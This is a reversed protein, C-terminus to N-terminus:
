VIEENLLTSIESIAETASSRQGSDLHMMNNLLDRARPHLMKKIAANETDLTEFVPDKTDKTTEYPLDGTLMIFLTVGVSWVDSRSSFKTALAVEPSMYMATGTLRELDTIEDDKDPDYDDSTEAYTKKVFPESSGFDVLVLPAGIGGTKFMFNEPKVDLHAFGAMHCAELGRLMDLGLQFARRPEIEGLNDSVYDYLEGGTYANTVIYMNAEDEYVAKCSMVNTHSVRHILEAERYCFPNNGKDMVKVAVAADTHRERAFLVRGFAGNGIEHQLAFDEDICNDNILTRRIDAVHAEDMGTKFQPESITLGMWRRSAIKAVNSPKKGFGMELISAVSSSSLARAGCPTGSVM